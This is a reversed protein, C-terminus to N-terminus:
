FPADDEFAMPDAQDIPPQGAGQNTPAGGAGQEQKAGLLRIQEAIINFGVKEIGQKDTYKNSEIRGEVYVSGGKRVYNGAIEALKRFTTINHWETREQKNGNKDKWMDTTAISFNTVQDGNALYRTEPDRGVNGILIVKNVSAM